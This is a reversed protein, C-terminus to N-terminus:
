PRMPMVVGLVTPSGTLKLKVAELV